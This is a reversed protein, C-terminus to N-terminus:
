GAKESQALASSREYRAIVARLLTPDVGAQELLESADAVEHRRRESHDLHTAEMFCLLEAFPRSDIDTFVALVHDLLDLKRAAPFMEVALAELGKTIVSRLLKVRVADGPASGELLTTPAGVMTFLAALREDVAGALLLPTRAGALAVAGTIAADVYGIGNVEAQAAGAAKDLPSATSLDLICTGSALTPILEELVRPLVAGPTCVLVLEGHAHGAHEQHIPLGCRAAWEQGAGAPRPDFLTLRSEPDGALLAEGWTTGVAGMGIISIEM